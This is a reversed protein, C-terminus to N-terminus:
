LIPKKKPMGTRRPYKLPSSRVKEILVIARQSDRSAYEFTRKVRSGMIEIARISSPLEQSVRPGKYSLFVGGIRLFPVALEVLVPLEALARAVVVDFSERYRVDHAFDEARGYLISYRSISLNELVEKLFETKKRTAELLYLHIHPFMIKLPIGPFGAGTGIDLVKQNAKMYIGKIEDPLLISDLFHKWIIEEEETSSVLNLEKNKERLLLYFRDFKAMQEPAIAVGQSWAAKKLLVTFEDM